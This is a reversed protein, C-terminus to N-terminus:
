IHILSLDEPAQTWGVAALARLDDRGDGALLPLYNRLASSPITALATVLSHLEGPSRPRLQAIALEAVEAQSAETVACTSAAQLGAPILSSPGLNFQFASLPHQPGLDLGVAM